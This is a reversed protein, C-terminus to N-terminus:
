DNITYRGSPLKGFVDVSPSASWSNLVSVLAVESNYAVAMYYNWVFWDLLKPSPINFKSCLIEGNCM